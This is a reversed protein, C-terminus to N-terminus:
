VWPGELHREVAECHLIRAARPGQLLAADLWVPWWNCPARPLSCPPSLWPAGLLSLCSARDLATTQNQSM